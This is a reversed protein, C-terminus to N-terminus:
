KTKLNILDEITRNIRILDEFIDKLVIKKALAKVREEPIGIKLISKIDNREERSVVRIDKLEMEITKKAYFFIKRKEEVTINILGKEDLFDYYHSVVENMKKRISYLDFASKLGDLVIEDKQSETIMPLEKTNLQKKFDFLKIRKYDYYYNMVQGFVVANLQQFPKTEFEGKIFMKFAHEIEEFTFHSYDSRIFKALEIWQGDKSENQNVGLLNLLTDVISLIKVNLIDESYEKIKQKNELVFLMPEKYVQLM